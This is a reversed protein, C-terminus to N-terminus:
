KVEGLVLTANVGGYAHGNVLAKSLKRTAEPMRTVKLDCEPDFVRYNYSPPIRKQQLALSTAVVQLAGAAAFPSGISGKISTTPINHVADSGLASRLAKTEIADLNVDSTGHANIYDVCDTNKVAERITAGWKEGTRDTKFLEDVNEYEHHFGLVEAYIRAGRLLAHTYDELILIGAAEGLVSRTRRLDFPCMSDEPCDNMTNLFGASSFLNLTFHNVACDSAGTLVVDARNDQIRTVANAIATLGSACATSVTCVFGQIKYDAAIACAPSNINYKGIGLPDFAGEVYSKGATPSSFVQEDVFEFSSSGAGIIVDTRFPDFFEINADKTALQAAAYAFQTSRSYSRIQKESLYLSPDFDPVEAAIQSPFSSADFRSITRIGSRGNLLSDWFRDKGIGVPSVVGLGTIVVRRKTPTDRHRTLRRLWSLM